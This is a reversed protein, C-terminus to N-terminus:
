RGDRTIYNGEIMDRCSNPKFRQLDLEKVYRDFPIEDNPKLKGFAVNELTYNNMLVNVVMANMVDTGELKEFEEVEKRIDM